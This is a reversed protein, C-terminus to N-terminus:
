VYICGCLVGHTSLNKTNIHLHYHRPFDTGLAGDKRALSVLRARSVASLDGQEVHTGFSQHVDNPVKFFTLVCYNSLKDASSSSPHSGYCVVCMLREEGGLTVVYKSSDKSIIRCPITNLAHIFYYNKQYFAPRLFFKDSPELCHSALIDFHKEQGHSYVGGFITSGIVQVQTDFTPFTVYKSLDSLKHKGRYCVGFPDYVTSWQLVRLNFSLVVHNATIFYVMSGIVLHSKVNTNQLPKCGLDSWSAHVDDLVEFDRTLPPAKYYHPDCAKSLVFLKNEHTFALPAFKESLMHAIPKLYKKGRLNESPTLKVLASKDLAFVDTKREGIIYFHPELYAFACECNPLAGLTFVVLPVLDDDSQSSSDFCYRLLDVKYLLYRGDSSSRVFMFLFRNDDSRLKSVSVEKTSGSM